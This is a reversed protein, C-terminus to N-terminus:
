APVGQGFLHLSGPEFPPLPGPEFAPLPGPEHHEEAQLGPTLFRPFAVLGPVGGVGPGRANKGFTAVLSMYDRPEGSDISVLEALCVSFHRM